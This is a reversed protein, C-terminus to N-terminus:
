LEGAIVFELQSSHNGSESNGSYNLAGQPFVLYGKIELIANRNKLKAIHLERVAKDLTLAYYGNGSIEKVWQKIWNQVNLNIDDIFNLTIVKLASTKEPVAFPLSPTEFTKSQFAYIPEEVTTAPFWEKFPYPASPIKIDWLWSKSWEIKRLDEVNKLWIGM